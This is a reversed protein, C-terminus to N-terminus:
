LTWLVQAVSNEVGPPRLDHPRGARVEMTGLILGVGAVMAVSRRAWQLWLDEATSGNSRSAAARAVVRTAFGLPPTEDTSPTTRARAALDSWREDFNKM